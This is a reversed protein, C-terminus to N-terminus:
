VLDGYIILHASTHNHDESMCYQLNSLFACADSSRLAPDEWEVVVDRCCVTMRSGLVLVLVLM